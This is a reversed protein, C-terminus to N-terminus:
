GHPALIERRSCVTLAISGRTMAVYLNRSNMGDADLIVVADAELGKLLLTSGVARGPLRRGMMRYQDRIKTVAQHFSLHSSCECLRLAKICAQLVVPRHSSASPQQAIELLVDAARSHSPTRVFELAAGEVALPPNRATGTALSEVRRALDAAGANRIVTQGFRALREMADSRSVEFANAFAVLDRLDVAEVTVAGPTQSAFQRQSEPSTSEGIIMVSGHNEPLRIRAARLRRQHDETGDLEVWNVASPAARLDIPERELLNKRQELLWCGLPRADANIWRWPISLEGTGPFDACVEHDWAALRDTGFGFIAQMPDGLVATPLTEAAHAILNHQLISCDQYEDVVLRSYTAALINAIHGSRLLNVAALRISPYDSPANRLELLEPNHGSRKPFNSILRMAWGDITALRYCRPTVGMQDLRRRLADVGANTHTLVLIPKGDGHRTLAQAILHTKGCGAPATVVGRDITLLDVDSGQM